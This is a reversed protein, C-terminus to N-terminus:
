VAALSLYRAALKNIIDVSGGPGHFIFLLGQANAPILAFIRKQGGVGQHNRRQIDIDVTQIQPHLTVDNAPMVFHLHWEPRPANPLGTHRWDTIVGNFPDNAAFVHVIEGPMYQGSGYGGTVTVTYAVAPVTTDSETIGADSPESLADLPALDQLTFTQADIISDDVSLEVDLLGSDLASDVSSIEPPISESCGLVLMSTFVISGVHLMPNM